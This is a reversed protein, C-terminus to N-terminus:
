KINFLIIAKCITLILLRTIKSRQLYYICLLCICMWKKEHVIGNHFYWSANWLWHNTVIHFINQKTKNILLCKLRSEDANLSQFNVMGFIWANWAWPFLYYIDTMYELHVPALPNHLPEWATMVNARINVWHTGSRCM